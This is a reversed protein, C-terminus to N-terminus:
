QSADAAEDISSNIGDRLDEVSRDTSPFEFGFEVIKGESVLQDYKEQGIATKIAWIQPDLDRSGLVITGEFGLDLLQQVVEGSVSRGGMQDDIVLSDVLSPNEKLMSLITKISRFHSIPLVNPCIRFSYVDWEQGDKYDSIQNLFITDGAGVFRKGDRSRNLRANNLVLYKSSLGDDDLVAVRAGSEKKFQEYEAVMAAYKESDIDIIKESM